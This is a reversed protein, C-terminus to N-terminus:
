GGTHITPPKVTKNDADWTTGAWDGFNAKWDDKNQELEEQMSIHPRPDQQDWLAQLKQQTYDPQLYDDYKQSFQDRGNIGDIITDRQHDGPLLLDGGFTGYLDSLTSGVVPIEGVTHGLVLSLGKDAYKHADDLTTADLAEAGKGSAYVAGLSRGFTDLAANYQFRGDTYTTQGDVSHLVLQNGAGAVSGLVRNYNDPSNFSERMAGMLSTTNFVAHGDHPSGPHAGFSNVIDPAYAVLIDASVTSIGSREPDELYDGDTGTGLTDVFQMAVQASRDGGPGTRVATTASRLASAVANGNDLYEDGGALGRGGTTYFKMRGPDALFFDQSAASDQGLQNFFWTSPDVGKANDTTIVSRDAFYDAGHDGLDHELGYLKDGVQKLFARGTQPNGAATMIESLGWAADIGDQDHSDLPKLLSDIFPQALPAPSGDATAAAIMHGFTSLLQTNDVPDQYGPQRAKMLFTMKYIRDAGVRPLFAQAFYPNDQYQELRKVIDPPIPQGNQILPNVEDALERGEEAAAAPITPALYDLMEAAVRAPDKDKVPTASELTKRCAAAAQQLIQMKQGAADVIPQMHEHDISERIEGKADRPLNPENLRPDRGAAAAAAQRAQELQGQLGRIESQATSLANAFTRLATSAAGAHGSFERAKASLNGAQTAASKGNADKWAHDIGTQEGSIIGAHEDLDQAIQKLTDAASTILSPDGPPVDITYAM